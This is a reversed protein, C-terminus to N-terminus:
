WGQGTLLRKLKWRFHKLSDTKTSSNHRTSFAAMAKNVDGQAGIAKWFEPFREEIEELRIEMKNSKDKLFLRINANVTEWYDRCIDRTKDDTTLIANTYARMISRPGVWRKDLSAATDEKNRILHVYFADDRYREDLRGLLWSLRNDIEIHNDPYDLREPGVKGWNTEHGATFNTIAECAKQFSLSGSRGTCLVFVNM